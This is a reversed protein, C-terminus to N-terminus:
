PALPTTESAAPDSTTSPIVGMVDPILIQFHTYYLVIDKHACDDPVYRNNVPMVQIITNECTYWVTFHLSGTISYSHPKGLIEILEYLYVTDEKTMDSFYKYVASESPRNEFPIDFMDPFVRELWEDDALREGNRLGERTKDSIPDCEPPEAGESVKRASLIIDEDTEFFYLKDYHLLITEYTTEPSRPRELSGNLYFAYTDGESTMWVYMRKLPLYASFHPKGVVEILEHLTIYNGGLDSILSDFVANSVCHTFGNDFIDPHRAQYAAHYPFEEQYQLLDAIRPLPNSVINSESTADPAIESGTPTEASTTGQPLGGGQSTCSVFIFLLCLLSLLISILLKKM